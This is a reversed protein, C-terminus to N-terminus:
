AMVEDHFRAVADTLNGLLPARRTALASEAPRPARWGIEVGPVAHVLAEDLGFRRAIMVAFAAWSLSGANTLHCIGTDGDILLDLVADALAPVYTPSVIQDDAARFVQGSRLARVVSVAFNVDDDPSFFAATRVILHQGPSRAVGHEMAAKSRGYAGLPSPEDNEVYACGRRGDFVLDSSFQVTSIGRSGAAHALAIAGGANSRFCAEPEREAEDVRVWGAANVVAWPRHLDLAGAVSTENELDMEARGLLIYPINRHRCSRAIARGLTGTAGCILLAPEASAGPGESLPHDGIPAPRSTPRHALRIPLRWWGAGALVPHRSQGDTLQKLLSATATPRPHGSSVDFAGAEYRGPATLLTNWGSSGLLAWSTVAVIDLGQSRLRTAGDWAEGFWRAREESTCGNHVETVALPIGYREWAERLAGDLGPPKPEVVRIAEVDAYRLAHNEGHRSAPYRGLRHDLFRDSTLYHNIGIVDPVCPDDLIRRLRDGLGFSSIRRWLPHAPGLMGCLLDWSAWRRINDYSAQDRLAATAFTRGLDETQILRARPNVKRIEIMSLRTADIQNLLAQWFSGEDRRHPYWHGYLASFRATTLPENVPTWETIWDYREAALRAHRALGSAFGDDLLDTHRPGSGHHVLGAIIRMPTGRIRALRRDHWSWDCRDPGESVVSEWLIPYRLASLGLGAFLDIDDERGAHGTLQFQDTFGSGLRNVTCEPGGWLELPPRGESRTLRPAAPDLTVNHM